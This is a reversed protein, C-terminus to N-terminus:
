CDDDDDSAIQSVLSVISLWSLVLCASCDGLTLIVECVLLKVLSEIAVTGSELTELGDSRVIASSLSAIQSVEIGSEAACVEVFPFLSGAIQLVIRRGVVHHDARSCHSGQTVSISM